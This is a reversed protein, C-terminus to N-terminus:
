VNRRHGDSIYLISYGVKHIAFRLETPVITLMEQRTMVIIMMGAAAIDSGFNWGFSNAHPIWFEVSHGSPTATRMLKKDMIQVM